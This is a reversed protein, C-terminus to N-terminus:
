ECFALDDLAGSSGLHVVIRVVQFGDFGPEQQATATSAFGPQPDLTTLDLTRWGPPGDVLVDETWEAPVTYTRTRGASDTLTVSSAQGAGDDIDVLVVSRAGVPALFDFILNGGNEDDNPKPFSGGVAPPSAAANTQLILLKGRNVLLDRDQSPNNPGPNSSDFIVPGANNGSGSIALLRGFELDIRQGNGLPTVLDDETEFDLTLCRPCDAAQVLLAVDDVFFNTVGPAGTQTSEIRLTHAGGDAFAGIPVSVPEYGLGAYPAEGEFVEFVTTGDIRVRLVDVGNGSSIPIELFFDLTSAGAPITVIQELSGAEFAQIGGFWAWLNGTRPGTGGGLGCTFPDCIPTGFNTSAEDWAASPTGDEFGGDAVSDSSCASGDGSYTGGQAACDQATATVCSGDELCCAGTGLCQVGPECADGSEFVDLRVVGPPTMASFTGVAVLYTAGLQTCWEVTSALVPGGGPCDDDNGAVCVRAGCDACFVSIKTDSVATGPNCTTATLTNGTGTLSYWASQFPGSFVGCPLGIDDTAGTLDV